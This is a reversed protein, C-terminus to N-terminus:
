EGGEVQWWKVGLDSSPVYTQTRNDPLSVHITYNRRLELPHAVWTHSVEDNLVIVVLVLSGKKITGYESSLKSIDFHMQSYRVSSYTDLSGDAATGYASVPHLTKEKGNKEYRVLPNFQRSVDVLPAKNGDAMLSRDSEQGVAYNLNTDESYFLYMNGYPAQVKTGTVTIDLTTVVSPEPTPEDDISENCSATLFLAIFLGSFPLVRRLGKGTHIPTNAM